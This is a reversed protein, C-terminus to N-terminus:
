STWRQLGQGPDGLGIASGRVFAIERQIPRIRGGTSEGTVRTEAAGSGRRKLRTRETTGTGPCSRRRGSERAPRKVNLIAAIGSSAYRLIAIFVNRAACAGSRWIEEWVGPYPFAYFIM